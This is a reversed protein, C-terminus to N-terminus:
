YTDLKAQVKRHVMCLFDVYSLEQRLADEVLLMRTDENTYQMRMWRYSLGKDKRIQQLVAFIRAGLPKELNLGRVHAIDDVGFSDQLLEPTADPGVYIVIKDGNEYLYLGQLSVRDMSCQINSPMHVNEADAPLGHKEQLRHLPILRPYLLANSRMVCSNLLQVIEAYRHDVRCNLNRRRFCMQKFMSSLYMPLLKLSEPLILQGYSSTSACNVRYAHLINVLQDVIQAKPQPSNPQQLEKQLTEKLLVNTLADVCTYRFTSSLANTAALALTHVRICKVGSLNTYLCAVQVYAHKASEVLDEHKLVFCITSDSSLRSVEFQSCEHRSVPDFAAYMKNVTLGRSTRIKLSCGFAQRRLIHRSVDYHLQEGHEPLNFNPYFFTDGGSKAPLFSQTAVDIYQNEAPLLFCDVCVDMDLCKELLDKHFTPNQPLFLEGIKDKWEDDQSYVRVDDRNVQLGVGRTPLSRMFLMIQGTGGRAKFLSVASTLAAGSCSTFDTSERYLGPILDLLLELSSGGERPDVFLTDPSAPAFDPEDVDTQLIVAPEGSTTGFHYCHISSDFTMIAVRSSDGPFHPIMSRITQLVQHVYGTDMAARTVELVFLYYPVQPTVDKMSYYEIPAVYDVTGTCLEARENRDRRNGAFDLSCVFPKPVEFYHGCFNCNAEKGQAAWNYFANVYAKCRPCRLPGEDGNDLLPIPAEQEALAAFPQVVAAIPVHTCDATQHYTPIQNCTMRIFRASCSGKDVFVCRSSITINPPTVYKDTAFTKSQKGSSTLVGVNTPRPIQLPDIKSTNMQKQRTQAGAKYMPNAGMGLGTAGPPLKTPSKSPSNSSSASAGGQQFNPNNANNYVSNQSVPQQSYPDAAPAGSYPPANTQPYTSYPDSHSAPPPPPATSGTAGGYPPVAGYQQGGPPPPPPPLSPDSYGTASGGPLPPPESSGARMLSPQSSASSPFSQASPGAGIPLPAPEFDTIPEFVPYACAANPIVTPMQVSGSMDGTDESEDYSQSEQQSSSSTPESHSTDKSQRTSNRRSGSTGSNQQRDDTTQSQPQQQQAAKNARERMKRRYAEEATEERGEEQKQQAQQNQSGANGMMHERYANEYDRTSYEEPPGRGPNNSNATSSTGGGGRQNDNNRAPRNLPPSPTTGQVFAEVTQLPSASKSTSDAATTQTFSQQSPYANSRYAQEPYSSSSGAQRGAAVPSQPQTPAQLQQSSYPPAAAPAVSMTTGNSTGYGADSNYGNAAVGYPGSPTPVPYSSSTSSSPPYLSQSSSSAPPPAGAQQHPYDPQPNDYQQQQYQGGSYAGHSSPDVQPQNQSSSPLTYGSPTAPVSAPHQQQLQQSSLTQQPQVPAAFGTRSGNAQSHVPTGSGSSPKSRTPATPKDWLGGMAASGPPESPQQQAPPQLGTSATNAGASATGGSWASAATTAQQTAASGSTSMVPTGPYSSQHPFTGVSTAATTTTSDSKLYPSSNPVLAGGSAATALGAVGPSPNYPLGGTSQPPAFAQYATNGPPPVPQSQTQPMTRAPPMYQQAQNYSTPTARSSTPSSTGTLVGSPHQQSGAPSPQPYAGGPYHPQNYMNMGPATRNQPSAQQTPAFPQQQNYNQAPAASPNPYANSSANGNTYNYQNYYDGPPNSTSWQEGPQMGGDYHVASSSVSNGNIGTMPPPAPQAIAYPATATKQTTTTGPQHDFMSPLGDGRQHLPSMSTKM